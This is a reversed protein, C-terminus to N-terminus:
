IPLVGVKMLAPRVSRNDPLEEASGPTPKSRDLKGWAVPSTVSNQSQDSPGLTYARTGMIGQPNEVREFHTGGSESSRFFDTLFHWLLFFSDWQLAGFPILSAM